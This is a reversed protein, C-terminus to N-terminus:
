HLLTSFRSCVAAANRLNVRRRPLVISGTLRLNALSAWVRLTSVLSADVRHLPACRGFRRWRRPARRVQSAPGCRAPQSKKKAGCLAPSAGHLGAQDALDLLSMEIGLLRIPNLNVVEGGIETAVVAGIDHGVSFAAPAAGAAEEGLPAHAAVDHRRLSHKSANGWLVFGRRLGGNRCGPCLRAGIVGS